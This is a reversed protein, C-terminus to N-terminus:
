KRGKVSVPEGKGRTCEWVVGVRWGRKRGLRSDRVGRNIKETV